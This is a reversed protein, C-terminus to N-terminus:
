EWSAPKIGSVANGYKRIIQERVAKLFGFFDTDRKPDYPVDPSKIANFYNDIGGLISLVADEVSSDIYEPAMQKDLWAQADRESDGKDFVNDWGGQNKGRATEWESTYDYVANLVDILWKDKSSKANEPYFPAGALHFLRKVAKIESRLLNDGHKEYDARLSDLLNTLKNSQRDDLHTSQLFTEVDLSPDISFPNEYSQEELISDAELLIKLEEETYRM